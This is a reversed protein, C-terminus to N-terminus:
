NARLNNLEILTLPKGRRDVYLPITGALPSSSEDSNKLYLNRISWTLVVM